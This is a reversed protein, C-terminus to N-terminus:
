RLRRCRWVNTGSGYYISGDEDVYFGRADTISDHSAIHSITHDAPDIRWIGDGILTYIGGDPGLSGDALRPFHVDGDPLDGIFVTERAVPDYAIYKELDSTTYILGNEARVAGWYSTTGEVPHATHTVKEADCDWLFLCGQKAIPRSGTGGYSSTTCLIEGTEPVPAVGLVSHHEIVDPWWKVGCNEFDVRALAGGVRAKVPRTGIYARGDPGM